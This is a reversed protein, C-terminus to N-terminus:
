LRILGWYLAWPIYLMGGVLLLGLRVRESVATQVYRRWFVMLLVTFTCVLFSFLQLVLWPLPRGFVVPKVDHTFMIYGFYGFFGLTGIIGASALIRATWSLAPIVPRMHRNRLRRILGVGFYSFFIVTFGMMTGLHLWASDYWAPRVVEATSLRDQQPPQGIVHPGPKAGEVVDAIWATMAEPYGPSFEDSWTFGDVSYHLTHDAQSFFQITYHQNGGRELAEQFIQFSEGPPATRDNNGWIALLPQHLKELPPVPNYIAEAFLGASVLMSLGNRTISYIMPTSYIGQRRFQNELTWSTQQIPPVGSAGVTILFSVDNSRVAALPAVWGGESHGWLGIHELDIDTRSRLARVAALADDALLEYSRSDEGVGDASYGETRKDYILAAIGSKAFIEAEARYDEQTLPGAGHIIVIAPHPGSGKPVLLTGELKIRGSNFQVKQEDFDLSRATADSGLQTVIAISVM